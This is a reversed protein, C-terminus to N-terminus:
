EVPHQEFAPGPSSPEAHLLTQMKAALSKLRQVKEMARDESVSSHKGRLFRGSIILEPEFPKARGM